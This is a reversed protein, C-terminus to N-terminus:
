SSSAKSQDVINPVDGHTIGFAIVAGGDAVTVVRLPLSMGGTSDNDDNGEEIDDNRCECMSVLSNLTDFTPEDTCEDSHYPMIAVGFDPLGPNTRKFHSNPNYAYYALRVEKKKSIEEKKKGMAATLSTNNVDGRVLSVVCPPPATAIDDSLKMRLPRTEYRIKSSAKMCIEVKDDKNPTQAIMGNSQSSDVVVSCHGEEIADIDNIHKKGDLLTTTNNTKTRPLKKKKCEDMMEYLLKIRQETYRILIYGQGRLHAYALYAALPINCEPLMNCFLYQTSLIRSNTRSNDSETTLEEGNNITTTNTSSEIRLLGRLHLFLAEEPHLREETITKKQHKVEKTETDVTSSQLKNDDCESENTTCMMIDSKDVRSRKKGAAMVTEMVFGIPRSFGCPFSKGKSDVIRVYGGHQELPLQVSNSPNTNINKGASPPVYVGWPISTDIADAGAKKEMEMGSM